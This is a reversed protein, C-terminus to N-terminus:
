ACPLLFPAPIFINHVDHISRRELSASALVKFDSLYHSLMRTFRVRGGRMSLMYIPASKPLGTLPPSARRPRRFLGSLVSPLFSARAGCPTNWHRGRFNSPPLPVATGTRVMTRERRHSTRQVCKYFGVMPFAGEQTFRNLASQLNCPRSLLRGGGSPPM